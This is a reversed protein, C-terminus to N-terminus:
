SEGEPAPDDLDPGTGTGTTEDNLTCTFTIDASAFGFTGLADRIARLHPAVAADMAHRDLDGQADKTAEINISATDAM